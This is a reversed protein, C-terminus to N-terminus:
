AAIGLKRLIHTKDDPEFPWCPRSQELLFQRLRGADVGMERLSQLTTSQNRKALREGSCNLLLPHHIYRLPPLDLLQQLLRQIATSEQLDLGRIVHSVGQIADDVVVALHYSFAIDKRGIIMDNHIRVPHREGSEQQWFLPAELSAMAKNIDLRWAFPEHAMRAHQTATPLARCIRPYENDPDDAHPAVGM